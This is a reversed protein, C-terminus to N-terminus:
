VVSKRDLKSVRCRVESCYTHGKVCVCMGFFVFFRLLAALSSSSLDLFVLCSHSQVLAFLRLAAEAQRQPLTPECVSPGFHLFRSMTAPWRQYKVGFFMQAWVLKAQVSFISWAFSLVTCYIARLKCHAFGCLFFICIYM